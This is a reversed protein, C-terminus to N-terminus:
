QEPRIDKRLSDLFNSDPDLPEPLTEPEPEPEPEDPIIEVRLRIKGKKWGGGEQAKFFQCEVGGAIWTPASDSLPKIQQQLTNLLQNIRHTPVNRILSDKLDFMVVDDRSPEFADM